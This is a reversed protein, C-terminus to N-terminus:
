RTIAATAVARGQHLWAALGNISEFLVNLGAPKFFACVKLLAEDRLQAHFEASNTLAIEILNKLQLTLIQDPRETWIAYIM